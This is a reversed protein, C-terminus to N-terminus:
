LSTKGSKKIIRAPYTKGSYKAQVDEAVKYDAFEKRPSVISKFNIISYNNELTWLVIVYGM